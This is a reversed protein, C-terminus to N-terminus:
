RAFPIAPQGLLRELQQALSAATARDPL